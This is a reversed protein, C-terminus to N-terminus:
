ATRKTGRFQALTRGLSRSRVLEHRGGKRATSRRPPTNALLQPARHLGAQAPRNSAPEPCPHPDHREIAGPEPLVDGVEVLQRLLQQGLCSLHLKRRLLRPREEVLELLVFALSPGTIVSALWLWLFWAPLGRDM